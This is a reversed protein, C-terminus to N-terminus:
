LLVFGVTSSFPKERVITLDKFAHFKVSSVMLFSLLTVLILLFISYNEAKIDLYEFFIVATALMGAAAPIPLGNFRKPDIVNTQVNFRALRLAGCAVYVFSVVWGLRGYPELVWTYFLVAPAVGFSIVDALSDLEVGFKTSTKTLRAVKGDIGDFFGAVLILAGSWLFQGKIALILAYFSFLISTLTLLSPLIFIGKKMKNIRNRKRQWANLADEPNEYIRRPRLISRKQRFESAM